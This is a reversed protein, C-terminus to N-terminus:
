GGTLIRQWFGKWFSFFFFFPNVQPMPPVPFWIGAQPRALATEKLLSQNPQLYLSQRSM